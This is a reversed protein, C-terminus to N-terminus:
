RRGPRRVVTETVNKQDDDLKMGMGPKAQFVGIKVTPDGHWIDNVGAALVVWDPQHRLVSEELRGLMDESINGSVGAMVPEVLVGKAKLGHVVLRCYRGHTAGGATISDGLFAVKQGDTVIIGSGQSTGSRVADASAAGMGVLVALLLAFHRDMSVLRVLLGAKKLGTGVM